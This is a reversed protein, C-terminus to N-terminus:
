EHKPNHQFSLERGEEGREGGRREGGRGEGREEGRGEEREEEREEERREGRREGRVEGRGERGREGRKGEGRERIGPFHTFDSSLVTARSFLVEAGMQERAEFIGLGRHDETRVAV